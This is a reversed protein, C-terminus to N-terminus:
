SFIAEYKMGISDPGIPVLFIPIRGFKDASIIYTAQQYYENKQQTRFTISFPVRNSQGNNSFELVDILEAQLNKSEEFQIEFTKNLLPKFHAMSIESLELKEM